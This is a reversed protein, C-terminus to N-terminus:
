GHMAAKVAKAAAPKTIKVGTLRSVIDQAADAAVTEVEALAEGRATEIRAEAEDLKKDLRKQAAALKKESKAAADAKAKAVIEQAKARNENERVRWAEEQEDAADRAAQAAALDDAIQKDRLNVTDMVKPVMGRGIVFFTFGFFVLLWFVQSSYTEALQAIQPM